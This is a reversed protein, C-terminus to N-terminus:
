TFPATGGTRTPTCTYSSGETWVTKCTAAPLALTLPSNTSLSFSKSDIAGVSDTATVTINYSGAVPTGSIAGTSSNITLGSGSNGTMSWTLPTTGGTASPTCSYAFGATWATKCNSISISLAPNVTLTYTQSATAGTDDAVSIKITYTGRVATGSM